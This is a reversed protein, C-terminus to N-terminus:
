KEYNLYRQTEESGDSWDGKLEEASIYVIGLKEFQRLNCRM